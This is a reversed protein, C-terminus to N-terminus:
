KTAKVDVKLEIDDDIYKDGLNKVVNRSNYNVNWLVRNIKFTDSKITVENDTIAVDAPFKINKTIGKITLNGEIVASDGENTVGTIEFTGTPYKNTNFFHDANDEKLGKLHAELDEKGDGPKLDNVTISKMDITFKGSQLLSDKIFIQGDSIRITGHHKGSPKSGTWHIKSATVDVNYQKAENTPAVAEAPATTQAETTEADKKCSVALGTMLAFAFIKYIKM